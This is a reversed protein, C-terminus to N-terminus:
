RAQCVPCYFSSRQGHVVRRIPTTCRRCPEGARDYVLARTQFHGLEGSVGAFDRLSSGGAAVAETLVAVIAAHLRECDPRTLRGAARGPRIAARFLSESAYINGVGVVAQGALLFAKCSQRRGRSATYLTDPTFDPTLPEVGLGQLRAHSLAAMGASLVDVAGFRRPDHLRLALDGFSLQVHEHLQWPSATPVVRLAGSMGLHVLVAANPFDMLLYKSRRRTGLLVEGTLATLRSVPVATRLQAQRVEVATLRRGAFRSQVGQRTVEVEPLEPMDGTEPNLSIASGM